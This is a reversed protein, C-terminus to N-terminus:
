VRFRLKKFGNLGFGFINKYLGVRGVQKVLKNNAYKRKVKRNKIIDM